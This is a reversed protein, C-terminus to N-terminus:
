LNRRRGVEGWCPRLAGQWGDATEVMTAISVIRVAGTGGHVTEFPIGLQRMLVRPKMCNASAPHDYLIM